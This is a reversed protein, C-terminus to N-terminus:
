CVRRVKSFFYLSLLSPMDTIDMVVHFTDTWDLKWNLNRTGHEMASLARMVGHAVHLSLNGIKMTRM